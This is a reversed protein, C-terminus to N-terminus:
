YAYNLFLKEIIGLMYYNKKLDIFYFFIMLIQYIKLLFFGGKRVTRIEYM